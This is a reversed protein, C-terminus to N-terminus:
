DVPFSVVDGDRLKAEAWDVWEWMDPAAAIAQARLQARTPPPTSLAHTVKEPNFGPPNLLMRSSSLKHALGSPGLEHYLLDLAKARPSRLDLDAELLMRYKAVWDLRDSLSFPDTSLLYLVEEWAALVDNAWEPGGNHAFHSHVRDLYIEAVDLASVSFGGETLHTAGFLPDHSIDTFSRVPDAFRVWDAVPKFAGEALAQLTLAATGLKLWLAYPSLNADGCIVHLRRFREPDAHPEDRTNIIGRDHTTQHSTVQDFFDARQTLQFLVPPRGNESGVKGAGCFLQRTIFFGLGVSVIDDFPLHRPLLYNEHAGWSHSKGDSNSKFVRFRAGPFRPALMTSALSAASVMVKDGALEHYTASLPTFCEPTSYEPHAHDVYLRAGNTLFASPLTTGAGAVVGPVRVTPTVPRTAFLPEAWDDEGLLDPAPLEVGLYAAVMAASWFLPSTASLNEGVAAYEVETGILIDM